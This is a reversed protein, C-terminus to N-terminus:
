MHESHSKPPSGALNIDFLFREIRDLLLYNRSSTLDYKAAREGTILYFLAYLLPDIM